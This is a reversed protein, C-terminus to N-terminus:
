CASLLELSSCMDQVYVAPSILHGSLSLIRRVLRMHNDVCATVAERLRKRNTQISNLGLSENFAHLHRAVIGLMSREKDALLVLFCFLRTAKRRGNKERLLHLFSTSCARLLLQKRSSCLAYQTSAAAVHHICNCLPCASCM